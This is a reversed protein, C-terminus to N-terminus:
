GRRRSRRPPDQAREEDLEDLLEDPSSTFVDEVAQVSRQTEEVEDLLSDLQQTIEEPDHLAWSQEHIYRVVDEITQLQAEIVERHEHGERFRRLRQKLIRLRREKVKRVRPSAEELRERVAEISRRVESETSADARDRYRERRHLLNLHAALLGDIKQLHNELLGQSAGSLKQYNAEIADELQRLRAYRRQSQRSLRRYTEKQSAERQRSRDSGHLGTGARKKSRVARRFRDNRRMAALYVAEAAAALGAALLFPLGEGALAMGVVLLLAVAVFALNWPRQFAEKTYSIEDDSSGSAPTGRQPRQVESM